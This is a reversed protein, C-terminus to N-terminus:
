TLHLCIRTFHPADLVVALLELTPRTLSSLWFHPADLVVALLEMKTKMPNEDRWLVWLCDGFVGDLWGM